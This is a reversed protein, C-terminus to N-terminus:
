TTPVQLAAVPAHELGAAGLPVVHLSPLAQVVPSVHWAPAHAPLATVQVAWSAQWEAPVQLAAVPVHEFGVSGVPAAHPSLEFLHTPASSQLLAPAQTCAGGGTMSVDFGQTTPM